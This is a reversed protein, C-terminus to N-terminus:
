LEANRSNYSHEEYVYSFNLNSSKLGCSYKYLFNCSFLKCHRSMKVTIISCFTSSTNVKIIRGAKKQLRVIKSLPAEYNNGWRLIGGYTPYPYVM